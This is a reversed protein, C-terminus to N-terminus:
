IAAIYRSEYKIAHFSHGKFILIGFIQLKIGMKLLSFWVNAKVIKEWENCSIICSFTGQFVTLEPLFALRPPESGGKLSHRKIDPLSSQEQRTMTWWTMEYSAHLHNNRKGSRIQCHKVKGDWNWLTILLRISETLDPSIILGLM